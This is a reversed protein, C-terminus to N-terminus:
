KQERGFLSMQGDEAEAFAVRVSEDGSDESMENSQVNGTGRIYSIGWSADYGIEALKQRIEKSHKENNDAEYAPFRVSVIGNSLSADYGAKKLKEVATTKDM